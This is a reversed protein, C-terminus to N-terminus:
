LHLLIYIVDIIKKMAIISTINYRKKKKRTTIAKNMHDIKLKQGMSM